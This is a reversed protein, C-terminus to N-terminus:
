EMIRRSIKFARYQEQLEPSTLTVRWLSGPFNQAMRKDTIPIEECAAKLTEDFRLIMKETQLEGTSIEPRNCLMFVWTVTAASKLKVADTLVFSSEQYGAKRTLSLLGAERPYAAAMNLFIGSEEIEVDRAAYERGPQQEFGAILPVNHNISRTNWLTYREPGFTKATYVMNGADVIEPGDDVYLLFSGVDNHNHNEGNHGGKVAAYLGDKRSAWVQLGPLIVTSEGLNEGQPSHVPFFLKCLVRYTEPTDRPLIGEAHAAIQAGLAALGPQGTRVGFSFVREGDLMPKADCDAFNLFYPGAIHAKLPFAGIAKIHPDDYFTTRGGTLHDIHELCDLLSGGAMNWYSVGEDCGGDEPMVALYSDLMRMARKVGEALRIDEMEMLLMASIVNSLIWPTWNNVDSRIMGMWWFDDHYFFPKVIRREAELYVRRVILPSVANLKDKLLYCTWLLLASTQAAFLDIYPNEIDPLAREAAPRMGPHSSGNHASIGWFSEECICWLGDVVQDMYTGNSEICEALMATLLMRRRTFYPTEYVSRDGTRVFALFRTASLPPYDAGKQANANSIIEEQMAAPIAKWAARNAAPPIPLRKDKPVFLAHLDTKELYETFM